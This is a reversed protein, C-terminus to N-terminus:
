QSGCGAAVVPTSAAVGAYLNTMATVDSATLTRKHTQCPMSTIFMTTTQDVMDEGMGLFHGAEHTAVNQIDYKGGCTASAPTATEPAAIVTYLYANNIITDAEVVTGDDDAYSITISIAEEFGSVTIPGYLITNVGDQAAVGPTDSMTFTVTPAGTNAAAWTAFAETIAQQAGPNLQTLSPDLVATLTAGVPWHEVAGNSTIRPEPTGSVRRTIHSHQSSKWPHARVVVIAAVVSFAMAFLAVASRKPRKPADAQETGAAPKITRAAPRLSRLSAPIWSRFGTAGPPQSQGGSGTLPDPAITIIPAKPARPFDPM